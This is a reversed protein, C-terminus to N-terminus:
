GTLIPYHQKGAPLAALQPQTLLGVPAVKAGGAPVVCLQDPRGLNVAEAHALCDAQSVGQYFLIGSNASRIEYTQNTAM